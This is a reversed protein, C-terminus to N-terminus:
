RKRLNRFWHGPLTRACGNEDTVTLTYTNSSLGSASSSFGGSPTWAYRYPPVGGSVGFKDAWRQWQQM